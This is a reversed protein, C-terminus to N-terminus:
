LMCVYMCVYMGLADFFVPNIPVVTRQTTDRIVSAKKDSDSWNLVLFHDVRREILASGAYSAAAGGRHKIGVPLSRQGDVCRLSALLNASGLPRGLLHRM